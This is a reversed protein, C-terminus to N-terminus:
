QPIFHHDGMSSFTVEHSSTTGDTYAELVEEGARTHYSRLAGAVWRNVDDETAKKKNGGATLRKRGVEKYWEAWLREYERKLSANITHDLPQLLPSCNPPFLMTRLKQDTFM